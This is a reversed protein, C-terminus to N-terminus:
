LDVFEDVGITVSVPDGSLKARLGADTKLSLDLHSVTGCGSVVVLVAVIPLVKAPLWPKTLFRLYMRKRSM